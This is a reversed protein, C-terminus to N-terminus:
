FLFCQPIKTPSRVPCTLRCYMSCLIFLAFVGEQLLHPASFSVDTGMRHSHGTNAFTFICVKPKTLISGSCIFPSASCSRPQYPPQVGLYGGIFKFSLYLPSPYHVQTRSVWSPGVDHFFFLCPGQSAALITLFLLIRLHCM